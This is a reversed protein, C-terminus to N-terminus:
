GYTLSYAQLGKSLSVRLDGAGDQDGAVLQKTNPPGSVAIATTTGDHTVTVTGTGGVVLYVNRAHYNVAIQDNVGRATIGQYDLTWAGQLAFSDEAM